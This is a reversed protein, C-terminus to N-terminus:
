FPFPTLNLGLGAAVGGGKLDAGRQERCETGAMQLGWQGSIGRGGPLEKAQGWHVIPIAKSESERWVKRLM